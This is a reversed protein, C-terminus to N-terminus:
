MMAMQTLQSETPYNLHIPGGGFRTVWEGTRRDLVEVTMSNQNVVYLYQQNADTSFELVVTDGRVGSTRGTPDSIPTHPAYIIQQLQGQKNFVQIQDARRDCVYILGDDSIRLSLSNSATMMPKVTYDGSASLGEMPMLYLIRANGGPLEGDAVYIEGAKMLM